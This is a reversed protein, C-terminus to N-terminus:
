VDTLTGVRRALRRAHVISYHSMLELFSLRRRDEGALAERSVEEVVLRLTAASGVTYLLQWDLLWLM